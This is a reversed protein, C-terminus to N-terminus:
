DAAELPPYGDRELPSGSAEGSTRGRDLERLVARAGAYLDADTSPTGVNEAEVRDAAEDFLALLGPDAETWAMAYEFRDPRTYDEDIM